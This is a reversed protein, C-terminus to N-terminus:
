PTRIVRLEFASSTAWSGPNQPDPTEFVGGTATALTVAYRERLRRSPRGLTDTTTVTTLVVPITRGSIRESTVVGTEYRVLDGNRRTASWVMNAGVPRSIVWRRDSADWRYLTDRALCLRSEEVRAQDPRRRLRIVTCEAGSLLAVGLLVSDITWPPQAAGDSAYILEMGPKLQGGPLTVVEGARSRAPSDGTRVASSVASGAGTRGCSFLVMSLAGVLAFGQLRFRGRTM